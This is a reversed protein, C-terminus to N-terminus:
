NEGVRKLAEFAHRRISVNEDRLAKRLLPAAAKGEPGIGFQAFARYAAVRVAPNSHDMLKMLPEVLDAKLREMGDSAPSEHPLYQELRALADIASRQVPETGMSLAELLAPAAPLGTQALSRIAVQRSEDRSHGLLRVLAPAVTRDIQQVADQLRQPDVQRDYFVTERMQGVVEGLVYAAAEPPVNSAESLVRAVPELAAPGLGVLIRAAARRVDPDKHKLAAVLTGVAAKAEPGMESLAMVAEYAAVPDNGQIVSELFSVTKEYQAIRWLSLAAEIGYVPDENELAQKLVPVAEKAQPGIRGLARAALRRFQALPAYNIHNKPLDVEKIIAPVAQAAHPGMRGLADIASSRVELSPSQIAQVLLPVADKAAPGIQGLAQAARRSEEKAADSGKDVNAALMQRWEAASKGAYSSTSQDASRASHLGVAGLVLVLILPRALGGRPRLGVRKVSLRLHMLM